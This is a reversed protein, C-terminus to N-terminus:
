NPPPVIVILPPPPPVAPQRISQIPHALDIVPYNVQPALSAVVYTKGQQSRAFYDLNLEKIVSIAEKYTPPPM